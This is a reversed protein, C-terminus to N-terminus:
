SGIIRYIRWHMSQTWEIRKKRTWVFLIAIIIAIFIIGGLVTGAIFAVNNVGSGHVASAQLKPPIVQTDTSTDQFCQKQVQNSLLQMKREFRDRLIDRTEKDCKDLVKQICKTQMQIDDGMSNCVQAVEGNYGSQIVTKLTERLDDFCELANECCRTVKGGPKKGNFDHCFTDALPLEKDLDSAMQQGLDKYKRQMHLRASVVNDPVSPNTEQFTRTTKAYAGNPAGGSLSGIIGLPVNSQEFTKPIMGEIKPHVSTTALSNSNLSHQKSVHSQGAITELTASVFSQVIKVGTFSIESGNTIIATTNEKNQVKETARTVDSFSLSQVNTAHNNLDSTINEEFYAHNGVIQQQQGSDVELSASITAENSFNANTTGGLGEVSSTIAPYSTRIPRNSITKHNDNHRTQIKTTSSSRTTIIGNFILPKNPHFSTPPVVNPLKRQTGRGLNRQLAGWRGNSPLENASSMILPKPDVLPDLPVSINHITQFVESSIIHKRSSHDALEGDDYDGTEGGEKHEEDDDDDGNDHDDSDSDDESRDKLKKSLKMEVSM